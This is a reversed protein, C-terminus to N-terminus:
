IYLITLSKGSIWCAPLFFRRGCIKHLVHFTPKAMKLYRMITFVKRWYKIFSCRFNIPFDRALHKLLFEVSENIKIQFEFISIEDIENRNNTNEIWWEYKKKEHSYSFCWCMDAFAFNSGYECRSYKMYTNIHLSFPM